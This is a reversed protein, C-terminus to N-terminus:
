EKSENVVVPNPTIDDAVNSVNNHSFTKTQLLFLFHMTLDRYCFIQNSEGLKKPVM